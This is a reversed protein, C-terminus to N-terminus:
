GILPPPSSVAVVAALSDRRVLTPKEYDKKM